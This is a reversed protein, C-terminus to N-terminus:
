GIVRGTVRGGAQSYIRVSRLQGLLVAQNACTEKKPAVPSSCLPNLCRQFHGDSESCYTLCPKEADTMSASM